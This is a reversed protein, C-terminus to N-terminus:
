AADDLHKMTPLRVSAADFMTREEPTIASLGELEKGNALRASHRQVARPRYHMEEPSMDVPTAAPRDEAM